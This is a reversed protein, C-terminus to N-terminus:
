HQKLCNKNLAFALDDEDASRVRDVLVSSM